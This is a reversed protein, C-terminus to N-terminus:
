PHRVKKKQAKHTRKWETEYARLEFCATLPLRWGTGSLPPRFVGDLYLEYGTRLPGFSVVAVPEVKGAGGRKRKVFRDVSIPATELVRGSPACREATLLLPALAPM